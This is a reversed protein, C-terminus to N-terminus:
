QSTVQPGMDPGNTTADLSFAVDDDDLMNACQQIDFSKVSGNMFTLFVKPRDASFIKFKQIKNQERLRRCMFLLKSTADNLNDNLFVRSAVGEPLIESLLISEKKHYNIMILDRLFVSNLKVLVAKGNSLYCCHQIDSYSLPTNCVAAIKIIPDRLNKIGAPLGNIIIDARNLRRRTVDHHLQLDHIADAHNKDVHKILATCNDLDYKIKGIKAVLDERVKYIVEELQSRHNMLLKDVEKKYEAQKDDLSSTLTSFCEDLDRTVHDNSSIGNGDATANAKAAIELKACKTCRYFVDKKHKHMFAHQERTIKICQIHYFQGCLCCGISYQNDAVQKKCKSAPCIFVEKDGAM